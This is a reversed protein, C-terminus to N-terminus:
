FRGGSVATDYLDAVRNLADNIARSVTRNSLDLKKEVTKFPLNEVCAFVLIKFCENPLGCRISNIRQRGIQSIDRVDNRQSYPSKDSVDGLNNWNMTTSATISCAEMDRIFCHAAQIQRKTLEGKGLLSLHLMRRFGSKPIPGCIAREMMTPSACEGKLAEGHPLVNRNWVCEDAKDVAALMGATKLKEVEDNTVILRRRRRLDNKNVISWQGLKSTINSNSVDKKLVIGDGSMARRIRNVRADDLYVQM